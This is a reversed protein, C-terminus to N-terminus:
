IWIVEEKKLAYAVGVLLLGIFVGMYIKALDSLGSFSLAWIMLFVIIIDFVVFMIAFVYFQVHFQIQAEGIPVEGCEYTTNRLTTKKNPRFFKSAFFGVVPVLIAVLAFFAIPLYDEILMSPPLLTDKNLDQYQENQGIWYKGPVRPSARPM